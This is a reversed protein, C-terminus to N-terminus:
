CFCSNQCLLYNRVDLEQATKTTKRTLTATVKPAPAAVSLPAPEGFADEEDPVEDWDSAPPPVFAPDEDGFDDHGLSM